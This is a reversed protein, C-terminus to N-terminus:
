RGPPNFLSAQLRPVIRPNGETSIATVIVGSYFGLHLKQSVPNRQVELRGPVQSREAGAELSSLDATDAVLDSGLDLVESTIFGKM